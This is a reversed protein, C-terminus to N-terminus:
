NTEEIEVTEAASADIDDAAEQLDMSEASDEVVDAADPAADAPDPIAEAMDPVVDATEPIADATAADLVQPLEYTWEGSPGPLMCKGSIKETGTPCRTEGSCASVLFLAIAFLALLRKM